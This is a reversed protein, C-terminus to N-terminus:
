LNGLGGRIGLCGWRAGGVLGGRRWHPVRTAAGNRQLTAAGFNVEQQGPRENWRRVQLVGRRTVYCRGVGGFHVQPDYDHSQVPFLGCPPRRLPGEM